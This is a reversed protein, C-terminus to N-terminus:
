RVGQGVSSPSQKPQAISSAHLEKFYDANSDKIAARNLTELVQGLQIGILSIKRELIQLRRQISEHVDVLEM